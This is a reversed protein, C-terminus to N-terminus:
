WESKLLQRRQHEHLEPDLESPQNAYIENLKATVEGKNLLKLHHEIATAYFESRSVGRKKRVAEAQEFLEDPISIATKM